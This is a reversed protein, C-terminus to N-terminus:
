VLRTVFNHMQRNPMFGTQFPNILKDICLRMRNALLKKFLKADTNILSLPRWNALNSAEGKKYLLILRTRSWSAPFIGQMADNMIDVLLNATEKHKLMLPYIEFPLGDLGPSKGKPAEKVFYKIDDLTIEHSIQAQDEDTLRGDAAIAQTLETVAQRNIAEPTFL